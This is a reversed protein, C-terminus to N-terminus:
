PKCHRYGPRPYGAAGAHHAGRRGCGLPGGPIGSCPVQSGLAGLHGIRNDHLTEARDPGGTRPMASGNSATPKALWLAGRQLASPRFRGRCLAPSIPLCLSCFRVSAYRITIPSPVQQGSVPNSKPRHRGSEYAPGLTCGTDNRPMASRADELKRSDVETQVVVLEMVEAVGSGRSVCADGCVRDAIELVAHGPGPASRADGSQEGGPLAPQGM